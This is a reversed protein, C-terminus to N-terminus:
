KCEIAHKGELLKRFTWTKNILLSNYENQVVEIWKDVNPNNMAEGFTQPSDDCHIAVLV